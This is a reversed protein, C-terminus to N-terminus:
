RDKKAASKGVVAVMAGGGGSFKLVNTDLAQGSPTYAITVVQADAAGLRYTGGSLIKFPRAVTVKGVLKGGGWNEVLVSNTVTTKAPVSGFDLSKPTVSIVPDKFLSDAAGVSFCGLCFTLIGASVLRSMPTRKVPRASYRVAVQSAM